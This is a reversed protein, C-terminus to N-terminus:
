TFLVISISIVWRLSTAKTKANAKARHSRVRLSCVNIQFFQTGNLPCASTAGQILQKRDRAPVLLLNQSTM